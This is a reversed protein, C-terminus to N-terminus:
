QQALFGSPTATDNFEYNRTYLGFPLVPVPKSYSVHAQVVNNTQKVQIVANPPLNNNRAAIAIKEKVVDVPTKNIAPMSVGNIVATQMEQKFNAGEYAVPVYQYGANALLGLFLAVLLLKVGASGRESQRNENKM